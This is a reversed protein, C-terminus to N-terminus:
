VWNGVTLPPCCMRSGGWSVFSASVGTAKLWLQVSTSVDLIYIDTTDALAALSCTWPSVLPYFGTSVVGASRHARSSECICCPGIGSAAKPWRRLLAFLLPLIGCSAVISVVQCISAVIASPPRIAMLYSRFCFTVRKQKSSKQKPFLHCKEMWWFDDFISVMGAGLGNLVLVRLLACPSRCTLRMCGLSGEVYSALSQLGSSDLPGLMDPCVMEVSIWARLAPGLSFRSRQNQPCQCCGLSRRTDIMTSWLPLVQLRLRRRHCILGFRSVVLLSWCRGAIFHSWLMHVDTLLPPLSTVTSTVVGSKSARANDRLTANRIEARRVHVKEAWTHGLNTVVDPLNMTGEPLKVYSNFIAM